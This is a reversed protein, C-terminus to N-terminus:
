LTFVEHKKVARRQSKLKEDNICCRLLYTAQTNSPSARWAPSEHLMINLSSLIYRWFTLLYTLLYTFLSININCGLQTIVVTVNV